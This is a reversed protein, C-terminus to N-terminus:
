LRNLAFLYLNIYVFYAIIAMAVLVCPCTHIQIGYLRCHRLKRFFLTHALPCHWLLWLLPRFLALDRLLFLIGEVTTQHFHLGSSHRMTKGIQTIKRKAVKMQKGESGSAEYRDGSLKQDLMFWKTREMQTARFTADFAGFCIPQYIRIMILHFQPMQRHRPDWYAWRDFSKTTRNQICHRCHLKKTDPM